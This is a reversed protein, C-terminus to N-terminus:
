DSGNLKHFASEARDGFRKFALFLLVAGLLSSAGVSVFVTGLVSSKGGLWSLTSLVFWKQGKHAQSDFLEDIYMIYEGPVLDEEIVRYLKRFTSFSAPRAWVIFDEDTSVPVEHGAEQEYWGHNYFVNHSPNDGEGHRHVTNCWVYPVRFGKETHPTFHVPKFKHLVDYADAIGKKRCKSDTPSKLPENTVKSFDKGDCVLKSEGDENQRHLTFSDNFMSWPILGAPAYVFEKFEATTNDTFKVVQHKGYMDGPGTLPATEREVSVSDKGTLQRYSISKVYTRHHQHFNTLSYYLYVPAKMTKTVHFPVETLCGQRAPEADDSYKYEHIGENNEYTCKKIDDYRFSLEVVQQDASLLVVGTLLFFVGVIFFWVLMVPPSLLPQWSPLRQQKFTSFTLM